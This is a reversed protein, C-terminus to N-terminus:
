LSEAASRLIESMRHLVMFHGAGPVIRVTCNPLAAGVALGFAVPVHRDADGHWLTVPHRVQALDFGWPRLMCNYDAVAGHRGQRLAERINEFFFKRWSRTSTKVGSSYRLLYNPCEIVPPILRCAESIIAVGLPGLPNGFRGLALVGRYPLIMGNLYKWDSIPGIGSVITISTLESGFHAGCAAAYPGGGSMGFVAFRKFGFHEAAAEVVIPWDTIRRRPRPSSLGFGPRELAILSLGLRAAAHHAIRAEFRSGPFGHFYFLPRALSPDGYLACGIDGGPLPLLKQTISAGHVETKERISEQNQLGPM